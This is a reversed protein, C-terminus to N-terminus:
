RKTIIITGQHDTSTPSNSETKLRKGTINLCQGEWLKVTSEKYFKTPTAKFEKHIYTLLGGSKTCKNEGVHLEYDTIKFQEKDFNDPLWCEQLCIASFQFKYRETFHDLLM